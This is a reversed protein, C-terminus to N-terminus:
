RARRLAEYLRAAIAPDMGGGIEGAARDGCLDARLRQLVAAFAGGFRACDPCERVHAEIAARRAAPLDGDLYGSLDALVEGCALGGYVPRESM